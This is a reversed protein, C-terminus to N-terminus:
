PAARMCVRRDIHAALLSVAVAQVAMLNVLVILRVLGAELPSAGGLVLGVFAGPLTVTGVTRTQDLGPLLAEAAVPRAVLSRADRMSFGLALAAEVEGARQDLEQRLRRGALNVASMAEGILQGIVAIMALPSLPLVGFGLMLALAPLGGGAIAAAPVWWALTGICRTCTLTAIAFMLGLFVATLAGSRSVQSILLAALIM